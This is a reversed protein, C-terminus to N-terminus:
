GQVRTFLPLPELDMTWEAWAAGVAGSGPFLDVLEDGRRLNLMAFIWRCFDRPKAGVVGRRMTIPAEVWDRQKDDSRQHQRGGRWIVPEWAYAPNVGPKFVAFSKVWAGVRCGDPCLPLLVGLSPSSASLAWGDPFEAVLQEILLKHRGIDDWESAMEHHKGYHKAGCGLYPPDAYAIRLSM